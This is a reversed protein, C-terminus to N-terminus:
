LQATILDDRTAEQREQWRLIFSAAVYAVMGCWTSFWAWWDIPLYHPWSEAVLLMVGASLRVLEMLLCGLIMFAAAAMPVVTFVVTLLTLGAVALALISALLRTM